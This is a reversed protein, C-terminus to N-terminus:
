HTEENGDQEILVSIHKISSVLMPNYEKCRHEKEDQASVLRESTPPHMLLIFGRNTMLYSIENFIDSLRTEGNKFGRHTKKHLFFKLAKKDIGFYSGSSGDFVFVASTIPFVTGQGDNFIVELFVKDLDLFDKEDM